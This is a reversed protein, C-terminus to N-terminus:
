DGKLVGSNNPKYMRALRRFYGSSDATTLGSVTLTTDEAKILLMKYAAARKDGEEKLFFEIEEESFYPVAEERLVSKLWSIDDM